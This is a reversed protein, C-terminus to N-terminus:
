FDSSPMPDTYSDFEELRAPAKDEFRTYEKRWV